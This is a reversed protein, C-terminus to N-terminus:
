ESDIKENAVKIPRPSRVSSEKVKSTKSKGKTPSHSSNRPVKNTKATIKSPKSTKGKVAVKSTRPNKTNSKGKNRVSRRKPTLASVKNISRKLLFKRTTENFTLLPIDIIKGLEKDYTIEKVKQLNKRELANKLVLFLKKEEEDTIDHEKKYHQSFDKLKKIKSAKELKIWPVTENLKKEKELFDDINLESNKIKTEKQEGNLLMTKYKINKLEICEDNKKSAKTQKSEKDCVNESESM